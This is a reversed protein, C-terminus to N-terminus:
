TNPSGGRNSFLFSIKGFREVQFSVTSREVGDFIEGLRMDGYLVSRVKQAPNVMVILWNDLLM